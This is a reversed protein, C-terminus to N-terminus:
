LATAAIVHAAYPLAFGEGRAYVQVSEEIQAQISALVDPTQATLLAGTRVGFDRECEFVFAAMPVYWEVTVTRFVLSAPVFGLRCTLHRM